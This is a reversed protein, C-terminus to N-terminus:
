LRDYVHKVSKSFISILFVIMVGLALVSIFPVHDNLKAGNNLVVENDRHISQFDFPDAVFLEQTIHIILYFIKTLM